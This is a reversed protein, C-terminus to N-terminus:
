GGNIMVYDINNYQEFWDKVYQTLCQNHSEVEIIYLNTSKYKRAIMQFDEDTIYNFAQIGSTFGELDCEGKTIDYQDTFGAENLKTILKKYSIRKLEKM